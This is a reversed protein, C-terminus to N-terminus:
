INPLIRIIDNEVSLTYKKGSKKIIKKIQYVSPYDNLGTFGRADDILIVHYVSSSLIAELEDKVPTDTKGKATKILVDGVFFESSYHGDLWFLVPTNVKKILEKLVEGSDGQIIEVNSDHRFKEKAQKALNESLEISIVHDFINKFYEVTEGMFTGTEVLTKLQYKVRYGNLISRKTEYGPPIVPKSFYNKLKSKIKYYTKM